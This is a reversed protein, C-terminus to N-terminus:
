RHQIYLIYVAGKDYEKESMEKREREKGDGGGGGRERCVRM